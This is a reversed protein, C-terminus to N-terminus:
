GAARVGLRVPSVDLIGDVIPRTGSFITAVPVPSSNGMEPMELDLLILRPVKERALEVASSGSEATLVEFGARM